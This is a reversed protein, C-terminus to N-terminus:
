LFPLIIPVLDFTLEQKASLNICIMAISAKSGLIEFNVLHIFVESNAFFLWYQHKEKEAAM